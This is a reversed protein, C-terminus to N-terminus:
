RTAADSVFKSKHPIQEALIICRRKDARRDIDGLRHIL